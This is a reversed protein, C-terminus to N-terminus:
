GLGPHREAPRNRRYRWRQKNAKAETKKLHCPWPHIPGLNELRHDTPDDNKHDIEGQGPGAGPKGCYWCIDGDRAWVAKRRAPGFKRSGNFMMHEFFHSLGTTGPGENRSGVQFFFYLAVTPITRDEEVLIKMGNKLTASQVRTAQNTLTEAQLVYPLLLSALWVARM